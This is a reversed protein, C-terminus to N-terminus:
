GSTCRYAAQRSKSRPEAGAQASTEALSSHPGRAAPAVLVRELYLLYTELPPVEVGPRKAADDWVRLIVADHAHPAWAFEAAEVANMPGGQLALSQASARSLQRMYQEDVACLYRKASVHLRVPEVVDPGFFQSLFRYGEEEHRADIGEDAISEPQGHVLHGVDHLLAAVVLADSAGSGVAMDATQLAHELQSVPEGFYQNAGHEAFLRKILALEDMAAEM